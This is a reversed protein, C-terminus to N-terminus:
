HYLGEPWDKLFGSRLSPQRFSQGSPGACRTDEATRFLILLERMPVWTREDPVNEFAKPLACQRRNFRGVLEADRATVEVNEEASVEVSARVLLPANPSGAVRATVMGWSPRLGDHVEEGLAQRARRRAGVAENSRLGQAEVVELEVASLYAVPRQLVAESMASGRSFRQSRHAPPLARLDTLEPLEVSGGVVPEWAAGEVEGHEVHEVVAAAEEHAGFEIIPFEKEGIQIEERSGEQGVAPRELEVDIIV